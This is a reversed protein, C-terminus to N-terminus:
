KEDQAKAEKEAPAEKQDAKKASAKKKPEQKANDLLMQMLKENKVRDAFYRLVYEGGKKIDEPKQDYAKAYNEIEQDIEEDSAQIDEKEIIARLILEAKLDHIAQQEYMQDFDEATKGGEQHAMIEYYTKPDIGNQKIRNEFDEKLSEKSERVMQPALDISAMNILEEVIQNKAQYELNEKKAKSLKAKLDAEYAAVTEFESIDSVFEDNYEPKESRKVEHILCEFVADKGAVESHAYEKPFTVKVSVKEGAKKGILQDEFGPIFNGSGLVLPYNEGKGGEFPKSDIYGDYDLVVTDDKKAPEDVVILRANQELQRDIEAKLEAKSISANIKDIVIGKYAPLEFEPELAVEVVFEAGEASSLKEIKTLTPAAVPKLSEGEILKEYESPFCEELADQCFVDKGYHSEVVSLPAKGKRFGPITIKAKQKDYAKKIWTQLAEKDVTMRVTAVSKEIKEVTYSM